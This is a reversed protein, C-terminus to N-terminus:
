YQRVISRQNFLLPSLVALGSIAYVGELDDGMAKRFPRKSADFVALLNQHESALHQSIFPSINVLHFNTQQGIDSAYRSKSTYESKLEKDCEEVM